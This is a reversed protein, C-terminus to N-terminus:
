YFANGMKYNEVIKRALEAIRKIDESEVMKALGEMLMEADCAFEKRLGM